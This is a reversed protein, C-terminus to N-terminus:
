GLTKPVSSALPMTLAGREATSAVDSVQGAARSAGLPATLEFDRAVRRGWKGSGIRRM